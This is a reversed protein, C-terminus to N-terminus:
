RKLYLYTPTGALSAKTPSACRARLARLVWGGNDGLPGGVRFGGVFGKLCVGAAPWAACAVGFCSGCLPPASTDAREFARTGQVNNVMFCSQAAHRSTMRSTM